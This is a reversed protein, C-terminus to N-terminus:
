RTVRRFGSKGITKQTAEFDAIVKDLAGKAVVPIGLNARAKDRVFRLVNVMKPMATVVSDRETPFLAEIREADKESPRGKNIIAALELALAQKSTTFVAIDASSAIGTQVAFELAQILNQGPAATILTKTLETLRLLPASAGQLERASAIAKPSAIVFRGSKQGEALEKGTLGFTPSELTHPNIISQLDNISFQEDLKRTLKATALKRQVDVKSKTDFTDLANFEETTIQSILNRRGLNIGAGGFEAAQKATIEPGGFPSRGAVLEERGTRLMQVVNAPLSESLEILEEETFQEKQGPLEQQPEQLGAINSILPPGGPEGAQPTVGPAPPGLQEFRRLPDDLSPASLPQRSTKRRGIIQSVKKKGRQEERKALLAKQLQGVGAASGINPANAVFSRILNEAASITEPTGRSLLNQVDLELAVLPNQNTPM